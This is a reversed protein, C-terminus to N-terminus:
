RSAVCYFRYISADTRATSHQDAFGGPRHLGASAIAAALMAPWNWFESRQAIFQDWSRSRLAVFDEQSEIVFGGAAFLEEVCSFGTHRSIFAPTLLKVVAIDTTDAREPKLSRPLHTELFGRETLTWSRLM